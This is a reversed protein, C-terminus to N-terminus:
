FFFILLTVTLFFKFNFDGKKVMDTPDDCYRLLTVESLLENLIINLDIIM